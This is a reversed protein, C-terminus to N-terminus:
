QIKFTPLQVGGFNGYSFNGTFTCGNLTVNAGTYNYMGGGDNQSFNRDFTVNTLNVACNLSNLMGGGGNEASNGRFIVNSLTPSAYLNYMGAGSTGSGTFNSANGGTITFGDLVASSTLPAGSTFSNNIVNWSDEGKNAVTLNSATGNIVDDGNLDGSLVTVNTNYNRQALATETGNFGGYIAVNNKMVFSISRDTGTTPKYTGAKVWIQSNAVAGNITAQLNSSANAWNSGNQSGAGTTTVYYITQAQMIAALWMFAILIFVRKM